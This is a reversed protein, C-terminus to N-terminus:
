KKGYIAAGARRMWELEAADMPGRDLATHVACAEEISAPGSLCVDVCPHSLSFRYCDAATPVPESLPIRRRDLLRGWCTATFSVIGPRPEVLHPFVDAEAGRHVANYRVHFIDLDPTGQLRPILDRRHTSVGAARIRGLRKLERVGDLIREPIPRNWLGLLLVDAYDYHLSGLAQELSRRILGATPSYSQISLIIRDRRGRLNFLAQRMGERRWSGWYLYNVGHEFAAEVAATPVRYAAGMGIRGVRPGTHGLTTETFPAVVM